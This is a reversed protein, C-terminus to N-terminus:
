RPINLPNPWLPWFGPGKTDTNASRQDLKLLSDDDMYFTQGAAGSGIYLSGVADAGPSWTFRYVAWAATITIDESLNNTFATTTIDVSEGGANGLLWISLTYEADAELTLALTIGEVDDAAVYKACYDGSRRETDAEGAGAKVMEGAALGSNAWGQPIDPNGGQWTEMGGTDIENIRLEKDDWYAFEANTVSGSGFDMTTSADAAEFSFEVTNWGAGIGAQTCTVGLAAAADVDVLRSAGNITAPSYVRGHFCYNENPVTVVTYRAFAQTADGNLVRLALSNKYVQAASKSITTAADGPSIGGIGGNEDTLLHDKSVFAEQERSHTGFNTTVGGYLLLDRGADTETNDIVTDAAADWFMWQAIINAAGGVNETPDTASALMEAPTRIDDFLCANFVSGDFVAAPSYSNYCGIVFNPSEDHITNPLGAGDDAVAYGNVYFICSGASADYTAGVHYWRDIVLNAATSTRNSTSVATGASSVYLTLEDGDCCFMYMRENGNTEYKSLITRVGTLDDARIWAQLTFDNAGIIGSEPFDADSRWYFQTTGNIHGHVGVLEINAVAGGAGDDGDGGTAGWDGDAYFPVCNGCGGYVILVNNNVIIDSGAASVFTAETGGATISTVFKGAHHYAVGTEEYGFRDRLISDRGVVFPTGAGADYDATVQADTWSRDYLQLTGAANVQNAQSTDAGYQITAGIVTITDGVLANDPVADRSVGDTYLEIENNPLDYRAVIQYATGPTWATVDYQVRHQTSDTDHLDFILLGAADIYLEIRNQTAGSGQNDLFYHTLGEGPYFYLSELEIKATWQYGNWNETAVADNLSESGVSFRLDDEHIISIGLENVLDAPRLNYYEWDFEALLEQSWSPCAIIFLLLILSLLRKM